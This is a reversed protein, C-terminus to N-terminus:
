PNFHILVNSETWPDPLAFKVRYYQGAKFSFWRDEAFRRVLPSSDQAAAPVSVTALKLVSVTVVLISHGLRLVSFKM